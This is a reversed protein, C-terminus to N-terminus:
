ATAKPAALKQLVGKERTFWLIAGAIAVGIVTSKGLVAGGLAGFMAYQPMPRRTLIALGAGLGAGILANECAEPALLEGFGELPPLVAGGKVFVPTPQFCRRIQECDVYPAATIYPDFGYGGGYFVPTPFGHPGPFHGGGGHHHPHPGPPPPPPPPGGFSAMSMSNM